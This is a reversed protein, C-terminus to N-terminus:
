FAGSDEQDQQPHTACQLNCRFDKKDSQITRDVMSAAKKVQWTTGTSEVVLGPDRGSIAQWASEEQLDQNTKGTEGAVHKHAVTYAESLSERLKTAYETCNLSEPEATSYM